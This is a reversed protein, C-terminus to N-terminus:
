LEVRGKHVEEESRRHVQHILTKSCVYISPSSRWALHTSLDEVKCSSGEGRDVYAAFGEDMLDVSSWLLLYMLPPYFQLSSSVDEYLALSFTLIIGCNSDSNPVRFTVCVILIWCFQNQNPPYFLILVIVTLMAVLLLFM